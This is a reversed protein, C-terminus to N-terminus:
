GYHRCEIKRVKNRSSRRWILRERVEKEGDGDGKM